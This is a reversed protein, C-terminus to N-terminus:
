TVQCGSFQKIIDNIDAASHEKKTDLFDKKSAATLENFLDRIKDTQNPNDMVETIAEKCLETIAINVVFTYDEIDHRKYLLLATRAAVATRTSHKMDPYDSNVLKSVIDRFRDYHMISRHKEKCERKNKNRRNKKIKKRVM